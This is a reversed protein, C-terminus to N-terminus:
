PTTATPRVDSVNFREQALYDRLYLLSTELGRYATGADDSRWWARPILEPDTPEPQTEMVDMNGFKADTLSLVHPGDLFVVDM